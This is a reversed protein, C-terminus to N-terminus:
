LCNFINSLTSPMYTHLIDKCHELRAESRQQDNTAAFMPEQELGNWLRNLLQVVLETKEDMMNTSSFQSRLQLLEEERREM